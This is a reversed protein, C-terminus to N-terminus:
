RADDDDAGLLEEATRAELLRDTWREVQELAADDLRAQLAPPLQGFRRVLLRSLLQRQGVIQGEQRGEQHGERRGEQHGEQRGEQRGEQCGEEHGERRAERILQSKYSMIVEEAPYGAAAALDRQFNPGPPERAIEAAYDICVELTRREGQEILARVLAAERLLVPWPDRDAAARLLLLGLRLAPEAPLADPAVRRLDLLSYSFTPLIPSLLARQSAQILYREQLSTPARWPARGTYVVCALVGPLKTRPRARRLRDRCLTTSVDLLRLDMAPEPRAQHELVVDLQSGEHTRLTFILDPTRARRGGSLASDQRRLDRPTRARLVEVPLMLRLLELARPPPGILAKFFRDHPQPM